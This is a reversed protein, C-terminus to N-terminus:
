LVHSWIKLGTFSVTETGDPATKINCTRLTHDSLLNYPHYTEKYLECM